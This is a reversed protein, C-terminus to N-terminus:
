TCSSVTEKTLERVLADCFTPLEKALREKDEKILKKLAIHLGADEIGLEKPAAAEKTEVKEDEIMPNKKKKFKKAPPAGDEQEEVAPPLPPAIEQIRWEQDAVVKALAGFAQELLEKQASRKLVTATTLAIHGSNLWNQPQNIIAQFIDTETAELIEQQRISADKKSNEALGENLKATFQPHFMSADGPATIWEIIKRGWEHLIMEDLHTVIVDLIYKKLMKTDDITNLIAIILYYGFEHVCIKQVHDKLSKLASRREKAACYFFIHSAAKAGEKTSALSALQSVFMGCMESRDEASCEALYDSIVAHFLSNDVLKKNAMHTIHQKLNSLVINKMHPAVKYVDAICKINEDKDRKYLDSYFEQRMFARQKNSAWTVYISDLTSSALAHSTLKVVHGLIATMVQDRMESTGHKLLAAICFHSYKSSMMQPVSPLLEKLVEAKIDQPAVKFLCQVVRATDHALVLKPYINNGKLLM